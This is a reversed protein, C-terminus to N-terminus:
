NKEVKNFGKRTWYNLFDTRYNLFETHYNLFDAHYNLFDTHYNLFDTHYNLFETHCNLFGTRYNLICNVQTVSIIKQKCFTYSFKKYSDKFDVIKVKTEFAKVFM